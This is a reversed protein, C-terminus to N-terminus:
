KWFCRHRKSIGARAAHPQNKDVVQMSSVHGVTDDLPVQRVTVISKFTKAGERDESVKFLSVFLVVIGDGKDIAVLSIKTGFEQVPYKKSDGLVYFVELVCESGPEQLAAHQQPDALRMNPLTDILEAYLESDLHLHLTQGDRIICESARMFDIALSGHRGQESMYEVYYKGM